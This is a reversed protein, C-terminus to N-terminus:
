KLQPAMQLPLQGQRGTPDPVGELALLARKREHGWRYRHLGGGKAVLRHCPYLLALPNKGIAAGIARSAQPHGLWAAFQGYEMTAGRPLEAMRAWVRQEFPTGALDVPLDPPDAAPQLGLLIIAIETALGDPAELLEAEPYRERLERQLAEDNDGFAIACLGLDTRAVLLRDLPSDACAYRILAGKGKREM